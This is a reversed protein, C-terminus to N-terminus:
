LKFGGTRDKFFGFPDYEDRVIEAYALTEPRLRGWYDEQFNADNAFLPLYAEPLTGNATFTSVREQIGSFLTEIVGNM